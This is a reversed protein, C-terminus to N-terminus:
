WAGGLVEQRIIDQIANVVADLDLRKLEENEEIILNINENINTLSVKTLNITEAM